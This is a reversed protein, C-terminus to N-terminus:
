EFSLRIDDGCCLRGGAEARERRLIPGTFKPAETRWATWVPLNEKQLLIKLM